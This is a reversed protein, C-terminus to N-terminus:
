KHIIYLPSSLSIPYSPTATLGERENNKKQRCTILDTGEVVVLDGSYCSSSFYPKLPRPNEARFIKDEHM